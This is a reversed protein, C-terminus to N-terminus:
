FTLLYNWFDILKINVLEFFRRQYQDLEYRSPVDDLLRELKGVQRSKAALDQRLQDLKVQYGKLDPPEQSLREPGNLQDLLIKNRETLEAMEAKCAQKFDIERKKLSENKLV